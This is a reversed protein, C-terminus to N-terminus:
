RGVGAVDPVVVWTFLATGVTETTAFVVVAARPEVIVKVAVADPGEPAPAGVPAPVQNIVPTVPTVLQAEVVPGTEFAFTEVYVQLKIAATVPVYEAVNLMAWPPAYLATEPTTEEVDVTTEAAVGVRTMVGEPAAVKPPVSVKVAVRVPAFLEAAGVPARLQDNDPVPFMLAHEEFM